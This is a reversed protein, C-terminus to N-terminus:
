SAVGSTSSDAGSQCLTAVIPHDGEVPLGFVEIRALELSCRVWYTRGDHEFVSRLTSPTNQLAASMLAALEPVDASESYAALAANMKAIWGADAAAVDAAAGAAIRALPAWRSPRMESWAAAATQSKRPKARARQLRGM